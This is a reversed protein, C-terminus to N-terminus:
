TKINKVNQKYSQFVSLVEINYMIKKKDTNM